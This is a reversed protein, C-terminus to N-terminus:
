AAGQGQRSNAMRRSDELDPARYQQESVGHLLVEAFQMAVGLRLGSTRRIEEASLLSSFRAVAKDVRGARM